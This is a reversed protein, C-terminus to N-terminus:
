EGPTYELHGARSMGPRGHDGRHQHYRIARVNRAVDVGLLQVAAAMIIPISLLVSILGPMAIEASAAFIGVLFLVVGGVMALLGACATLWGVAEVMQDYWPEPPPPYAIQRVSVTECSKVAAICANVITDRDLSLAPSPPPAAAPPVGLAAVVV